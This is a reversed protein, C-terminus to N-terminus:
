PWDIKVPVVTWPDTKGDEDLEVCGTFRIAKGVVAQARLAPLVDTEVIHNLAAAIDNFNQSNPFSSADLLGSADRVVNGFILGTPLEIDPANPAGDLAVHVADREVATIHGSGTIFFSTTSSFGPSHGFKKQAATHDKNLAALLEAADTADAGAPILQQDWFHRAFAAGDFVALQEKKQLQRLSIVHFPPLLWCWITIAVLLVIIRIVRRM